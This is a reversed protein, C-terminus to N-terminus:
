VSSNANPSIAPYGGRKISLASKENILKEAALMVTAKDTQLEKALKTITVPGNVSLYALIVDSAIIIPDTPKETKIAKTKRPSAKPKPAPKSIPVSPTNEDKPEAILSPKKDAHQKTSRNAIIEDGVIAYATYAAFAAVMSLSIELM